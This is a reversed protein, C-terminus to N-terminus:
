VDLGIDVVGAGQTLAGVSIRDVGSSAIAGVTELHVGGSAELLISSGAEDRMRVAKRLTDPGMNDLLVIDLLGAELTLLREFQALRDVEVEIFRLGSRNRHATARECLTRVRDALAEDAVGALHNDKVLVADHLGLRHCLGGGCRVAYKSLARMGPSTKRTDLISARSGPAADAAEVFRRTMTAIGSLQCLLNLLTRELRLIERQPGELEGLARGAAFAAGDEHEARFAVRPAFLPLLEPIAALGACVGAGRATIRGRIASEEGISVLSTVDGEVPDEPRGLDEERALSLLRTIQGGRSLEAYLEPLSLTNLDVV